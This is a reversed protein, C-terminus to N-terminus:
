QYWTNLAEALSGMEEIIYFIDSENFDLKVSAGKEDLFRKIEKYTRDKEILYDFDEPAYLGDFYHELAFIKSKEWVKSKKRFINFM